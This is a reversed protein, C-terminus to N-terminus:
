RLNLNKLSNRKDYGCISFNFQLILFITHLFWQRFRTMVKNEIHHFINLLFVVPMLWQNFWVSKRTSFLKHSNHASQTNAIALYRLTRILHACESASVMCRFQSAFASSSIASLLFVFFSIFCVFNNKDQFARVDVSHVISRDVSWLFIWHRRFNKKEKCRKRKWEEWLKMWEFCFFVVDYLNVCFDSDVTPKFDSWKYFYMQKLENLQHQCKWCQGSLIHENKESKNKKKRNINTDEPCSHLLNNVCGNIQTLVIILCANQWKMDTSRIRIFLLYFFFVVFFSFFCILSFNLRQWM